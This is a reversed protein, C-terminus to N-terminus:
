NQIDQLSVFRDCRKYNDNENDKNTKKIIQKISENMLTPNKKYADIVDQVLYKKNNILDNQNHILTEGYYKNQKNKNLQKDTISQIGYNLCKQKYDKQRSNIINITEELNHKNKQINQFLFDNNKELKLINDDNLKIEENINKHQQNLENYKSWWEESEEHVDTNYNDFDYIGYESDYLKDYLKNKQNYNKNQKIINKKLTQNQQIINQYDEDISQSENENQNNHINQILKNGILESYNDYKEVHKKFFIIISLGILLTFLEAKKYFFLALIFVCGSFIKNNKKFIDFFNYILSIVVVALLYLFFM